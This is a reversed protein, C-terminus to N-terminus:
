FWERCLASFFPSVSGHWAMGHESFYKVITSSSFFCCCVYLDREFSMFWGTFMLVHLCPILITFQTCHTCAFELIWVSVWLTCDMISIAAAVVDAAADVAAAAANSSIDATHLRLLLSPMYRLMISLKSSRSSGNYPNGFYMRERM